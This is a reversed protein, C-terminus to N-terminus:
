SWVRIIKAAKELKINKIELPHSPNELFSLSYLDFINPQNTKRIMRVQLLGNVSVIYKKKFDISDNAIQWLGGVWDGKEYVPYMANDTIEIAVAEKSSSLFFDIEKRKDSSTDEAYHNEAARALGIFRPPDGIGYLLWPISCEYGEAKAAQVVKQAGEETLGNGATAHVWLSISTISVGVKEAFQYRKLRMLEILERLRLGRAKPSDIKEINIM